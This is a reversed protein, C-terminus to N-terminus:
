DVEIIRQVGPECYVASGTLVRLNPTIQVDGSSHTHGCLVTMQRDPALAMAARLVDGVARCAFFPLWNDDSVKGEHWCSERFPPVHTLVIIHRFRSLADPLVARFHSAAEDGLAHLKALREHSGEDFGGFEAILGFDNLMVDSNLYDGFRGDGWGDHGVLCTTETLPQIGADPMWLLTPVERCLQVIEARVSAISARYFDHNGLVFYVPRGHGAFARLHGAVDPAEGIDGTIAFADAVPLSDFFAKLGAPPLFNLHIDTLWAIRKM